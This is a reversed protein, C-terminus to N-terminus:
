SSNKIRGSDETPRDISSIINAADASQRFFLNHKFYNRDVATEGYIIAEQHYYQAEFVRNLVWGRSYQM